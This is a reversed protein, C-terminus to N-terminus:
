FKEHLNIINNKIQKLNNLAYEFSFSIIVDNLDTNNFEENSLNKLKKNYIEFAFDEINM